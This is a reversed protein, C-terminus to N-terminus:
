HGGQDLDRFLAVLANHVGRDILEQVKEQPNRPSFHDTVMESVGKDRLLKGSSLDQLAVDLTVVAEFTVIPAYPKFFLLPISAFWLPNLRGNVSFDNVGLVLLQDIDYSARLTEPPDFRRSTPILVVKVYRPSIRNLLPDSGDALVARVRESTPLIGLKVPSPASPQGLTSRPSVDLTACGGLTFTFLFSLYIIFRSPTM